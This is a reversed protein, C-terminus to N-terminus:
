ENKFGDSELGLENRNRWQAILPAIQPWDAFDANATATLSNTDPENEDNRRM